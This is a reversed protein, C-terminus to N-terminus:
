EKEMSKIIMEHTIKKLKKKGKRENDINKNEICNKIKEQLKENWFLIISNLIVYLIKGHLYACLGVSLILVPACVFVGIALLCTTTTIMLITRLGCEKVAIMFALMLIKKIGAQCRALLPFTYTLIMIYFATLIVFMFFIMVGVGSKFQYYWTLDTILFIGLGALICWM